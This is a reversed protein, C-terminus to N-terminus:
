AELYGARKLVAHLASPQGEARPSRGLWDKFLWDLYHAHGGAAWTENLALHSAPDDYRRTIVELEAATPRHYKGEHIIGPGDLRGKLHAPEQTPYGLVLAILPVCNTPPLDLLTWLRQMDGRHVGNTLLYDIGLARAAVAATQAAIATDFAATVFSTVDDPRYTHGLSAASAMMRNHDVCYVLTRSGRYGCIEKMTPRDRVVIISYNQMASANAARLSAQVVAQLDDEAIERDSFNGHITRLHGITALTENGGDATSSAAHATNGTASALLLGGAAAAGARMFARRTTGGAPASTANSKM